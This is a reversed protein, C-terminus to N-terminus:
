GELRARKLTSNLKKKGLELYMSPARIHTCVRHQDKGEEYLRPTVGRRASKLMLVAAELWGGGWKM